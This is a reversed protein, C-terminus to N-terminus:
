KSAILLLLLDQGLKGTLRGDEQNTLVISVVDQDIARWIVTSFGNIGGGHGVLKHGDLEGIGWGYGYKIGPGMEFEHPTFAAEISERSLM